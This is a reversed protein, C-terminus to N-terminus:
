ESLEGTMYDEVLNCIIHGIMIHSEQIRATNNSPVVFCVDAKEKLVGGNKGSFCITYAGKEKAKDVANIINASNGSTSFGFFIDGTKVHAEVQRSFVHEYGYDNAIATLTAVDANLVVAPWATRERQFRGVLEGAIHLSDSASGGNGALVVKRGEKLAKYVTKSANEIMSIFASDNLISNKTDISKQIADKILITSKNM